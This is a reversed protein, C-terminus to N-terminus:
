TRVVKLRHKYLNSKLLVKGNLYAGESVSSLTLSFEVLVESFQSMADVIIDDIGLLCMRALVRRGPATAM